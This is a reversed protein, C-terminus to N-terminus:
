RFLNRIQIRSDPVSLANKANQQWLVTAVEWHREWSLNQKGIPSAQYAEVVANQARAAVRKNVDAM